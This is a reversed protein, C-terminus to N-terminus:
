ATKKSTGRTRFAFRCSNDGKAMCAVHDVEADAAQRLFALDLRCVDPNAQALAHYVCNYATITPTRAAADGDVGADFGLEDLAAAIEPIKDGLKEDKLTERLDRGLERGLEELARNAKDPGLTKIMTELAKLSFLDYNKPFLNLGRDSLRYARGPRGGTAVAESRAVYGDRELVALHQNVATRSVGLGQAIGDVTLGAKNHLLMRMLASQTHGFGPLSDRDVTM